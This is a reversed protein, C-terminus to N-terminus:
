GDLPRRREKQRDPRGPQHGRQRRRHPALFRHRLQPPPNVGAYPGTANSVVNPPFALRAAGGGRRLVAAVSSPPPTAPNLSPPTSRPATPASPSPAPTTAASPSTPPPPQSTPPTLSRSPTPRQAPSSPARLAFRRLRRRRLAEDKLTKITKVVNMSTLDVISISDSIHNVVWAETSTRPRITVPDLGVPISGISQPVGTALTFVELRNDATNTVLLFRGDPTLDIPHVQPSEWNVFTPTRPTYGGSSTGGGPTRLLGGAVATAAIAILGLFIAERRGTRATTM